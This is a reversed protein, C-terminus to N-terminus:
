RRDSTDKREYAESDEVREELKSVKTRLKDIERSLDNNVNTKLNLLEIFEEKMKTM